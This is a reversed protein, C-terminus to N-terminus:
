PQMSIFSHIFIKSVVSLVNVICTGLKLFTRNDNNTLDCKAVFTKLNDECHILACTSVDSRTSDVREQVTGRFSLTQPDFIPLLNIKIKSYSTWGSHQLKV